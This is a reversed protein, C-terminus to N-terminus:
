AVREISRRPFPTEEWGSGMFTTWPGMWTSIRCPSVCDRREPVM